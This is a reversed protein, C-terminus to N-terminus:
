YKTNIQRRTKSLDYIKHCSKCLRLWDGRTRKYLGSINAWDIYRGTLGTRKCHECADPKGYASVMWMHIGSYKVKDGKWFNNSAGRNEGKKFETTPSSHKGKNVIKLKDAYKKVRDDEKTLGKNWAVMVGKTGKNWPTKGMRALSMKKRTEESITM